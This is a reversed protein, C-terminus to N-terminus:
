RAAPSSAEAEDGDAEDREDLCEDLFALLADIDGFGRRQDSRHDHLSFRLMNERDAASDDRWVTLLFIRYNTPM